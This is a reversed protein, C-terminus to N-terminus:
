EENLCSEIMSIVVNNFSTDNERAIEDIEDVLTQKIYLTKYVAAKQGNKNKTPKIKFKM